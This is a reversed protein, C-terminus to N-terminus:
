ITLTYISYSKKRRCIKLNQVAANYRRYTKHNFQLVNLSHVISFCINFPFLPSNHTETVTFLHSQLKETLILTFYQIGFYFETPM